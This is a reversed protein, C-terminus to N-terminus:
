LFWVILMSWLIHYIEKQTHLTSPLLTMVKLIFLNIIFFIYMIISLPQYSIPKVYKILEGNINCDCHAKILICLVIAIFPLIYSQISITHIQTSAYDVVLMVVLGMNVLLSLYTSQQEYFTSVFSTDVEILASLLVTYTFFVMFALWLVAM